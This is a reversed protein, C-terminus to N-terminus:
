EKRCKLRDFVDLQKQNNWYQFNLVFDKKKEPSPSIGNEGLKTGAKVEDGKSVKISSLNSYIYQETGNEILITKSGNSTFFIKSVEGESVSFVLSKKHSHIIVSKSSNVGLNAVSVKYNYSEEERVMGDSVPCDWNQSFYFNTTLLILFPFFNKM